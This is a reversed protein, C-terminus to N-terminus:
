PPPASQVPVENDHSFRGLGVHSNMALALHYRRDLKNLHLLFQVRFMDQMWEKGCNKSICEICCETLRLLHTLKM